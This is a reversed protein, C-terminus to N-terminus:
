PFKPIRVHKRVHFWFIKSVICRYVPGVIAGKYAHVFFFFVRLPIEGTLGM